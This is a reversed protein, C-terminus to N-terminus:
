SSLNGLVAGDLVLGPRSPRPLTVLDGTECNPGLLRALLTRREDELQRAREAAAALVNTDPTSRWWQQQPTVIDTALKRAYLGNVDAIIIDRITQEPCGIERLNAVYTPYDASEVERWSFFQRRVVVNTRVVGSVSEPAEPTVPASGQRRASVLWTIGLALNVGLLSFFLVRWRM